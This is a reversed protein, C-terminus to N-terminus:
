IIADVANIIIFIIVFFLFVFNWFFFNSSELISVIKEALSVNKNKTKKINSITTYM